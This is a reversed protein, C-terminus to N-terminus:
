RIPTQQDFHGEITSRKREMRPYCRQCSSAFRHRHGCTAVIRNETGPDIEGNRNADDFLEASEYEAIAACWGHDTELAIVALYM